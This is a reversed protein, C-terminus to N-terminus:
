DRPPPAGLTPKKGSNDPLPRSGSAPKSDKSMTSGGKQTLGKGNAM